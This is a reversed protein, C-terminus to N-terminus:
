NSVRKGVEYQFAFVKREDGCSKCRILYMPVTEFAREVIITEEGCKTCDNLM